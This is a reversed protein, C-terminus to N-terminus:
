TAVNVQQDFWLLFMANCLVHALHNLGSEPDVKSGKRWEVLHRMLAAYYREGAKDVLQWNNDAYKKAGMTLVKVLEEITEVPLLDWRLKGNDYKLGLENAM